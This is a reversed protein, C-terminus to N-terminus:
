VNWQLTCGIAGGLMSNVFIRKGAFPYDYFISIKPQWKRKKFFHHAGFDYEALIHLAHMYWSNLRTDNNIIVNHTFLAGFVLIFLFLGLLLFMRSTIKAM